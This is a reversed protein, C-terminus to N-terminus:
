KGLTVNVTTNVPITSNERMSQKTVITYEKEDDLNIFNCRIKSERCKKIAEEKTLDILKPVTTTGGESIILSVTENNKILDGKYHSASILKGADVTDSFIWQVNQLELHM